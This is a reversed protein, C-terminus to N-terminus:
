HLSELTGVYGSPLQCCSLFQPPISLVKIVANLYILRPIDDWQIPRPTPQEAIALLDLSKLEEVIKAEVEPHQSVTYVVWAATHGTAASVLGSKMLYVLGHRFRSNHLWPHSPCQVPFLSAPPLWYVLARVFPSMLLQPESEFGAM